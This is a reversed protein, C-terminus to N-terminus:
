FNRAMCIEVATMEAKNALGMHAKVFPDRTGAYM